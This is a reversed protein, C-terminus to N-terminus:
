SPCKGVGSNWINWKGQFINKKCVGKQNALDNLNEKNPPHKHNWVNIDGRNMAENQGLHRGSTTLFRRGFM